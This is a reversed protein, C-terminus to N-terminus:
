RIISSTKQYEGPLLKAPFNWSIYGQYPNLFNHNLIVIDRLPWYTLFFTKLTIDKYENINQFDFLICIWVVVSINWKVNIYINKQSLVMGFETM